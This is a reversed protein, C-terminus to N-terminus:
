KKIKRSYIIYKHIDLLIKIDIKKMFYVLSWRLKQVLQVDGGTPLSTQIQQITKTRITLLFLSSYNNASSHTRNHAPEKDTMLATVTEPMALLSLEVINMNMNIQDRM